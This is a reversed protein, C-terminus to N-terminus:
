EGLKQLIYFVSGYWQYYKRYLDIEEQEQHLQHLAKKNSHYKKELLQIRKELPEYYLEWWADEPLPFYGLVQYGISSIVELAKDITQIGSYVRQWYKEIEQPPHPKLWCMEHIVLYGDSKIYPRWHKLGQEFGIIFISGEAWIIDFSQHPFALADMSMMMPTITSHLQAQKIRNMLDQLYLKHIDIGIINGKSLHALEITQMGPGCGIDLIDPQDIPPVMSFAQQTYENRGPGERPLNQHLEFFLEWDM